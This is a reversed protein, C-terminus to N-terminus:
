KKTKLVLTYSVQGPATVSGFVPVPRFCTLDVAIPKKTKTNKHVTAQNYTLAKIAQFYSDATVSKSQISMKIGKPGKLKKPTINLKVVQGKKFVPAGPPIKGNLTVISVEKVVFAKTAAQIPALTAIAAVTALLITKM